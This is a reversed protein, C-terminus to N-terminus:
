VDAAMKAGSGVSSFAPIFGVAIFPGLLVCVVNEYTTSLTVPYSIRFSFKREHTLFVDHPCMCALLYFIM